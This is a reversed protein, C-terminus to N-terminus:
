IDMVSNEDHGGEGRGGMGGSGFSGVPVIIIGSCCCLIGSCKWVTCGSTGGRSSLKLTVATYLLSGCAIKVSCAM